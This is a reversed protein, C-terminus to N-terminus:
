FAEHRPEKSLAEILQVRMGSRYMYEQKKTYRLIKKETKKLFLQCQDNYLNLAYLM